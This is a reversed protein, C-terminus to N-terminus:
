TALLSVGPRVVLDLGALYFYLCSDLGWERVQVLFAEKRLHCQPVSRPSWTSDGHGGSVSVTSVSVRGGKDRGGWVQPQTKATPFVKKVATKVLRERNECPIAKELCHPVITLHLSQLCIVQKM